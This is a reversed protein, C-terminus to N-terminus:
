ERVEAIFIHGFGPGLDRAPRRKLYGLDRWDGLQGYLYAVALQGGGRHWLRACALPCPSHSRYRRHRQGPSWTASFRGAGPPPRRGVSGPRAQQIGMGFTARSIVSEAKHVPPALSVGPKIVEVRSGGDPFADREQSDGPPPDRGSVHGGAPVGARFPQIGLPRPHIVPCGASAALLREFFSRYRRLGQRLDETSIQHGGAWREELGARESAFMAALRQMLEAVLADAEQVATRPEDVFEAQIDKWRMTISQLEGDELLSARTRPDAADADGPASRGAHESAAHGATLGAANDDDFGQHGTPAPIDQQGTGPGAAAIQETTLGRDQTNDTDNM